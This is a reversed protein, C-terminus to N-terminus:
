RIGIIKHTQLSVRWKPNNNCYKVTLDTNINKEKDILKDLSKIESNLKQIQKEKLIKLNNLSDLQGFLSVQFFFLFSTLWLRKM